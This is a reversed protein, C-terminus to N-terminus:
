QVVFVLESGALEARMGETARKDGFEEEVDLFDDAVDGM